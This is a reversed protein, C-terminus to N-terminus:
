LLNILLAMLPITMFCSLTSIMVCNAALETESKHIEALNLLVSACPVSCLILISAKFVPDFPLFYVAAFSILPFILQKMGCIVYVIPRKFLKPLSVSAIRIGLIIMCLPTTMKGIVNVANLLPEPIRSQWSFFWIPFGILLGLNNPTMIAAKLTIFKRDGTLCFVGVTFALLNMSVSFISSYVMVEPHDPFLAEVIPRGMFGVNGMVGAVSMIRYKAENFRKRFLLFTLAIFVSMLIFTALFFRGMNRLTELSYTFSMFSSIVLFPSGIYVLVGSLTPLHEPKARGMKKLTFGFAIYLMLILVNTLTIKFILM